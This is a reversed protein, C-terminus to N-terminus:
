FRVFSHLVRDEKQLTFRLKKWEQLCKLQSVPENQNHREQNLTNMAEVIDTFSPHLGPELNHFELFKSHERWFVSIKGGHCNPVNISLTNGFNFGRMSRGSETARTFIKDFLETYQRSITACICKFGVGNYVNGKNFSKSWNKRIFNGASVRMGNM